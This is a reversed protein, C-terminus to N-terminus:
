VDSISKGKFFEFRIFNGIRMESLIKVKYFTDDRHM